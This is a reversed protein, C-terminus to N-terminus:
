AEEAKARTAKAMAQTPRHCSAEALLDPGTPEDMSSVLRSHKVEVSM